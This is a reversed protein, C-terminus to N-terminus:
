GPREGDRMGQQAGKRPRDDENVLYLRPGINAYLIVALFVTQPFLRGSEGKEAIVV